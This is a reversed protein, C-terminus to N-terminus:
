EDIRTLTYKFLTNSATDALAWAATSDFCRIEVSNATATGVTFLYRFSSGSMQVNVQYNQILTGGSGYQVLDPPFTLKMIGTGTRAVSLLGVTQADARHSVSTGNWSIFGSAFAGRPTPPRNTYSVFTHPTNEVRYRYTNSHIVIGGTSTTSHPQMDSFVIWSGSKSPGDDTATAKITFDNPKNAGSYDKIHVITNAAPAGAVITVNLDAGSDAVTYQTTPTQKTGNLFVELDSAALGAGGTLTFVSTAGDALTYVRNVNGNGPHVFGGWFRISQYNGEYDDILVGDQNGEIYKQFIEVPGLGTSKRIILARGGNKESSYRLSSGRGAAFIGGSGVEDNTYKAFGSSLGNYATNIEFPINYVAAENVGYSTNPGEIGIIFGHLDNQYSGFKMAGNPEFTGWMGFGYDAGSHSIAGEMAFNHLRYYVAAYEAGNGDFHIGGVITVDRLETSSDNNALTAITGVATPSFLGVTSNAGTLTSGDGKIVTAHTGAVGATTWGTRLLFASGGAYITTGSKPQFVANTNFTGSGIEIAKGAGFTLWRTLATGNTSASASPSAGFWSAMIHKGELYDLRVFGGASGSPTLPDAIYVAEAPDATVGASIDSTERVFAGIRGADASVFVVSGDPFSAFPKAKLATYDAFSEAGGGGGLSIFYTGGAKVHIYAVDNGSLDFPAGTDTIGADITITDGTDPVIKITDGEQMASVDFSTVTDATGTEAALTHSAQTITFVGASIATATSPAANVIRADIVGRKLNRPVQADVATTSFALAALALFFRKM